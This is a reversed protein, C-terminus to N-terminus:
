SGEYELTGVATVVAARTSGDYSAAMDECCGGLSGGLGCVLVVVVAVVVAAATALGSRYM